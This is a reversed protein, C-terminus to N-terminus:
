FSFTEALKQAVNQASTQISQSDNVKKNLCSQAAIDKDQVATVESSNLCEGILSNFNDIALPAQLLVVNNRVQGVVLVSFPALVRDGEGDIIVRANTIGRSLFDSSTVRATNGGLVTNTDSAQQANLVTQWNAIEAQSLNRMKPNSIIASYLVGDVSATYRAGYSLVNKQVTDFIASNLTNKANPVAIIQGNEAAQDEVQTRYEVANDVSFSEFYSKGDVQCLRPVQLTVTGNNQVCRNYDDSVAAGQASELGILRSIKLSEGFLGLQMLIAGFLILAFLSLLINVISVRKM